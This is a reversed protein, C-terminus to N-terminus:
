DATESSLGIIPHARSRGLPDKTIVYSADVHPELASVKDNPAGVVLQFGLGRWAGIARGSFQADAKILAEDLFVPAYRPHEAGADGLQYRLAAGVIFAVLEQSEGGSKEGIHDYLAVHKGALDLKEASLRVYRRVDILDAREPNGPRLRDVLRAMRAYRRQREEDTTEANDALMAKLDRLEKRFRQVIVSQVPRADIRLRHADDAFPLANLIQNVPDIRENIERLSRSITHELDTLDAGSMRLLARRWEGELEHLRETELTTLIREFDGYSADPDTGLNPDAWRSVFQEFAARLATTGTEIATTAMEHDHRLRETARAVVSDFAALADTPSTQVLNQSEAESRASHRPSFAEGAASHRPADTLVENLYERQEDAVVLGDLEAADLVRQAADVEGSVQEWRTNLGEAEVKARVRREQLDGVQADLEDARAALEDLNPNDAKAQEITQQWREIAEQAAKVDIAEWSLETIQRSATIEEAFADAKLEAGRYADAARRLAEKAEGIQRDLEALRRTNTFGLVNTRGHGGHAGRAGESVQGSRTLAKRHMSLEGPTDVCVFAFRDALHERLWGEFPGGAFDLRGPLTGADLASTSKLGTPVGEFRLRVESPVADIAARFRTLHASDILVTTALGGLALNFAERWQEHSTSVEILEAVFPLDEARLGAAQALAVRARHLSDSVNGRRRALSDREETLRRLDREALRRADRAQFVAETAARKAGADGLRAQAAAVCREFDKRSVVEVGLTDLATALRARRAETESLHARALGLEREAQQVVDGGSAWLTQRVGDLESKAAAVSTDLERLLDAAIRSRRRVEDEVARLLESRREARWLGVASTDDDVGGVGEIVALRTRAADIAERHGRIHSLTRVQERATLMQERTSALEDFHEVVEGAKAFTEPDELVMSKYLQDVTTIQQGAQIRALLAVAKEGGGAAGIGLTSYVRAAFEKDTDFCHLGLASLSARAFRLGASGDLTALDFPGDFTARVPILGDMGTAGAPVYWARLATLEAGSQDAWTMAVATWTDRGEGRLVTERTGDATRSEDLKGRAYSIVNRQDKGRPRGVVGGNSAGNFPTTHPMLLAIYADMLTSKGSGSGGALLTATSALRLRHPGGYGGWNVVQLDRAIWQQGTSAAPILGFLTDVMSM